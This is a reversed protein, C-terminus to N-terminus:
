VDNKELSSYPRRLPIPVRMANFNEIALQIHMSPAISLSTLGNTKQVLSGNANQVHGLIM